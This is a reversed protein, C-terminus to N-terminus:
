PIHEKTSKRTQRAWPYARYVTTSDYDSQTSELLHSQLLTFVRLLRAEFAGGGGGGVGAGAGAKSSSSRRDAALVCPGHSSSNHLCDHLHLKSLLYRYLVSCYPSSRHLHFRSMFYPSSGDEHAHLGRKMPGMRRRAVGDDLAWRMLNFQVRM